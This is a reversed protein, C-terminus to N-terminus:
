WPRGLKLRLSTMYAAYDYPFYQKGLYASKTDRINAAIADARENGFKRRVRAVHSDLTNADAQLVWERWQRFAPVHMELQSNKLPSAFRNYVSRLSQVKTEDTRSGKSRPKRGRNSNGFTGRLCDLIKYCAVKIPLGLYRYAAVSVYIRLTRDSSRMSGPGHYYTRATYVGIVQQEKIRSHSHQKRDRVCLDSLIYRVFLECEETDKLLPPAEPLPEGDDKLHYFGDPGQESWRMCRLICFNAQRWVCVTPDYIRSRLEYVFEPRFRAEIDRFQMSRRKPMFSAVSM